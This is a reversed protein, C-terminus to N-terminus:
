SVEISDVQNLEEEGSSLAKCRMPQLPETRHMRRGGDPHIWTERRLAGDFKNRAATAAAAVSKGGGSLEERKKQSQEYKKRAEDFLVKLSEKASHIPNSSMLSRM